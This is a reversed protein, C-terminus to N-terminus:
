SCKKKEIFQRRAECVFAFVKPIDKVVEKNDAQVAVAAIAWLDMMTELFRSESAVIEEARKSYFCMKQSQLLDLTAQHFPHM